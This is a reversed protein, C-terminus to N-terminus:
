ELLRSIYELLNFNYLIHIKAPDSLCTADIPDM